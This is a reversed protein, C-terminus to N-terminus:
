KKVKYLLQFSSFFSNLKQYFKKFLNLVQVCPITSDSFNFIGVIDEGLKFTSKLLCFRVVRGFQNTIVYSNPSRRATLCDLKHLVVDLATEKTVSNTQSGRDNNKDKSGNVNEPKDLEDFVTLVRFPLRLLQIASNVRQTGVTLKYNYKVASGNYSPPLHYPITEQYYFTKSENPFLKLDCFLIKPKTSFILHGREGQCPHFSTEKSAIALQEHQMPVDPGSFNIKSEDITSHCHIQVGAWALTEVESFFLVTLLFAYFM